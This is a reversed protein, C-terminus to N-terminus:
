TTDLNLLKHTRKLTTELHRYDRVGTIVMKGSSFILVVTKENPFRLILGPFQEPEYSIDESSLGRQALNLDIPRGVDHTVVINQVVTKVPGPQVNILSSLMQRVEALLDRAEEISGCGRITATGNRYLTVHRREPGIRFTLRPTSAVEAISDFPKVRGLEGIPLYDALKASALISAVTYPASVSVSKKTRDSM